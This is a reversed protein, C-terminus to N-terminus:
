AWGKMKYAARVIPAPARKKAEQKLEHSLARWLLRPTMWYWLRRDMLIAHIGCAGNVWLAASERILASQDEYKLLERMLCGARRVFQRRTQNATYSGGRINYRALVSPEFCIGDGYAILHNILWDSGGQVDERWGGLALFRERRYMVTNHAIYLRGRKEMHALQRPSYYGPRDPMNAGARCSVGTQENFWDGISCCLGAQEHRDLACASAECYQPYLWDDSDLITLYDGGAMAAGQNKTAAMGINVPNRAPRLVPSAHRMIEDWSGDASGDDIVILEDPRWSQNLASDIARGVRSADNHCPIVLSIRRM